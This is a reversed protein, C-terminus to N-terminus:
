KTRNLVGLATCSIFSMFSMSYFRHMHTQTHARIKILTSHKGTCEDKVIRTHIDKGNNGWVASPVKYKRGTSMPTSVTNYLIPCQTRTPTHSLFPPFFLALFFFLTHTYCLPMLMFLPLSFCHLSYIFFFLLFIHECVGKHEQSSLFSMVRERQPFM